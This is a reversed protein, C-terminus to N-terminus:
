LRFLCGAPIPCLTVTDPVSGSNQYYGLTWLTSAVEALLGDGGVCMVANFCPAIESENPSASFAETVIQTAHEPHKTYIVQKVTIRSVSLMPQVTKEWIERGKGRGAVINVIALAKVVPERNTNDGFCRSSSINIRDWPFMSRINLLLSVGMQEESEREM